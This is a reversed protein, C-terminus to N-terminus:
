YKRQYIESLSMVKLEEVFQVLHSLILDWFVQGKEASAVTPDGLVGSSSIRSTRAYWEVGRRSSFDLYRSSFVPISARAKDMRVLHPRVALSTSTEVEGAHVDNKTDTLEGVDFDSTDGSEVCTFIRADRNINQAAFNLAPVNGGHGNIIVLKNIGSNALAMGVEYVLRSLVDPSVPITGPFDEHHYSVGYPILPLVLPRPVQCRSAVTRATYDADFSDTDLPLHPGHQELAGVPLLAIDVEQLRREAEPWALEGLLYDSANGAAGGSGSSPKDVEFPYPAGLSEASLPDFQRWERGERRVAGDSHELFISYLPRRLDEPIGSLPSREGHFRLKMVEPVQRGGPSNLPLIGRQKLLWVLHVTVGKEQHLKSKKLAHVCDAIQAPSYGCREPPQGLALLMGVVRRCKECRGCPRVREGDVHAAHCSVQLGQLEPYREALLKEVLLESLSRLLSFQTVGWGKKLYYRTLVDDFYRSQDFLGDYHSLGHSSPHRTTDHEDGVLVRGAGRLRALPLAAFIFVAVTWLRIPYADARVRSFDPRIFPLNRLMWNYLRDVNTWVRGTHAWADRHHRYANLATYWHRGSENVYVPAVRCGMERLLGFTLLSEKGGSSLVVYGEQSSNWTQVPLSRRPSHLDPFELKAQSYKKSKVPKLSAAPGVLFPNHCLLKNVLIERASNETMDSVFRADTEDLPGRFVIRRAFLGYNLAAQLSILTALNLSALDAPDLVDEGYRFLLRFQKEEDGVRVVYPCTIRRREVSPPGVELADFVLLEPYPVSM